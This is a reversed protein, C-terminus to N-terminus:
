TLLLVGFFFFVMLCLSMIMTNYVDFRFPVDVTCVGIGEYHRVLQGFELGRVFM